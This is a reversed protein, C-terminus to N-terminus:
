ATPILSFRRPILSRVRSTPTPDMILYSTSISSGVSGRTGGLLAREAGLTLLCSSCHRLCFPSPIPWAVLKSSARWILLPAIPQWAEAGLGPWPPITPKVAWSPSGHPCRNSEWMGPWGPKMRLSARPTIISYSYLLASPPPCTRNVGSRAAYSRRSLRRRPRSVSSVVADPWISGCPELRRLM